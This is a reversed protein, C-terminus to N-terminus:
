SSLIIASSISQFKESNHKSADLSKIASERALNWWNDLAKVAHETGDDDCFEDDDIRTPSKQEEVEESM